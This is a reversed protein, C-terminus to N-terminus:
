AAQQQVKRYFDEINRVLTPNSSQMMIEETNMLVGKDELNHSGWMVISGDVMLLKAHVIGPYQHTPISDNRRHMRKNVEFLVKNYGALDEQTSTVAEVKVGRKQAELLARRLQGSPQLYSLVKIDSSANQVLELARDRILSKRKRGSDVLLTTNPDSNFTVEYDCDPRMDNIMFFQRALAQVMEKNKIKVMLDIASFASETINVGGLWAIDDLLYIKDHRRGHLPFIREFPTPPNALVIEVGHDELSKLKIKIDERLKRAEPDLRPLYNPLSKTMMLTSSDIYARADEGSRAAEKLMHEILETNEGTFDGAMSGVWLRRRSPEKDEGAKYEAHMDALFEMPTLVAFHDAPQGTPRLEPRARLLEVM